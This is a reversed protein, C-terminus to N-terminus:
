VTVYYYCLRAYVISILVTQIWSVTINVHLEMAMKLLTLCFLVYVSPLCLSILSQANVLMVIICSYCLEKHVDEVHIADAM